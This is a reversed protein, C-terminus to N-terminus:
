RAAELPQLRRLLGAGIRGVAAAALSGPSWVMAPKREALFVKELAPELPLAGLFSLKGQPLSDHAALFKHFVERGKGSGPKEAAVVGVDVGPLSPLLRKLQHFARIRGAPNAPVALVLLKVKRCIAVAWEPLHPPVELLFFGKPNVPYKGPGAQVVRISGGHNKRGLIRGLHGSVTPFLGGEEAVQVSFGERSLYLASEAALFTRLWGEGSGLFAASRPLPEPPESSPPSPPPGPSSPSSPPASEPLPPSDDDREPPPDEGGKEGAKEKEGPRTLFLHVFDNLSRPPDGDPVNTEPGEAM